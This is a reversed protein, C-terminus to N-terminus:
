TALPGSFHLKKSKRTSNRFTEEVHEVHGARGRPPNEKKTLRKTSARSSEDGRWAFLLPQIVGQGHEFSARGSSATSRNAMCM